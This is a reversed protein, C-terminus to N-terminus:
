NGSYSEISPKKPLVLYIPFLQIWPCVNSLQIHLPEMEDLWSSPSRLARSFPLQPSVPLSHLSKQSWTQITGTVILVQCVLM